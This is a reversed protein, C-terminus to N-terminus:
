NFKSEDIELSEIFKESVKFSLRDDLAFIAALVKSMPVFLDHPIESGVKGTKYLVRALPPISCVPINLEKAKERMIFAINDAGLAVIRPTTPKLPNFQIGVTFHTPNTIVIDADGIRSNKAKAAMEYQASRRRGKIEPNGETNKWEEKMEQKSMKLQKVHSFVQFPVDIVVLLILLASFLLGYGVVDSAVDSVIVNFEYLLRMSMYSFFKDQIIYYAPILIIVAKLISKLLEVLQKMSFLKKIGKIPNINSFKPALNNGSIIFGGLAINSAIAVVMASVFFPILTILLDSMMQFSFNFIEKGHIKHIKSVDLSQILSEGLVDLINKGFIIMATFSFLLVATTSLEKSRPIQGKDKADRLKKQTPKETKEGSM